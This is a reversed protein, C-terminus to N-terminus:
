QLEFLAVCGGGPMIKVDVDDDRSVVRRHIAMKTPDGIVDAVVTMQYRGSPLFTLPTSYHMQDDNGNIVGVFWKDGSRRAFAALEGIRSGPLVLTEDWVSPTKMIIEFAPSTLYREPRDAWHTLPSTYVIVTALQMAFTTGHLREANFTCPTFDGHGALLRTFPLAAYHHRPLGDQGRNHELGRIGERTVEHPYTRAEGTPKNAGHFNVMLQLRATERLCTEYFHLMDHSESDLFDIKVGAAGSANCRRFFSARAATDQLERQHKWVHIGVGWSAAYSTLDKLQAWKNAGDTAWRQEWGADVLHHEFGLEAARDVWWKQEAHDVSSKSWWNWLSRGPKIWSTAIGDPFVSPAPPDCLNHVIDCNLLANLDPGTMVVRWPSTIDGEIM